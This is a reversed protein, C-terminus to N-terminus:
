LMVVRIGPFQARFEAIFSRMGEVTDAGEADYAAPGHPQILYKGPYIHTLGGVEAIVTERPGCYITDPPNHAM